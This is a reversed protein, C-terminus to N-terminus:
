FTTVLIRLGDWAMGSFLQNFDSTKDRDTSQSMFNGQPCPQWTRRWRVRLKYAPLRMGPADLGLLLNVAAPNLGRVNLVQVGRAPARGM